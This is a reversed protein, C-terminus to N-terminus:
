YHIALKDVDLATEGFIESLSPHPHVMNALEGATADLTRALVGEGILETVGSGILHMGLLDKTQQDEIIKCFGESDGNILAKGISIFPVKGVKIQYGLERAEKETVGVSAVEPRGYVCRPIMGYDMALPQIGAMHEVAIRGEGAAVHALQMGGIVDGIAYINKEKTEYVKNVKIFGNVQEINTKDIGIGETNAVRGISLLIKNVPLETIEGKNNKIKSIIQSNNKYFDPLVEAGTYIEVGRAQLQRTMERSIDQDEGPLIRDAAEIITVKVGLDSLLSAWEIGIVGGGVILLSDPLQVLSLIEDSTIIYEGDIPFNPISRPRAGTAILLKKGTLVQQGEQAKEVVLSLPNSSAISGTGQFVDIRNKKVLHTVGRYLRSIIEEKKEKMKRFDFSVEGPYIGLSEAERVWHLLSASRLLAKSPICGRHLCTGGLKDKEVIAVKMGLQSARIAAVYGGTGGGLVILDYEKAM